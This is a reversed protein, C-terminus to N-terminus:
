PPCVHGGATQGILIHWLLSSPMAAAVASVGTTGAFCRVRCIHFWTRHLPARGREEERIRNLYKERCRYSVADFERRKIARLRQTERKGILKM